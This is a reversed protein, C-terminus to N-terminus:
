GGKSVRESVMPGLGIQSKLLVSRYPRKERVGDHVAVLESDEDGDNGLM